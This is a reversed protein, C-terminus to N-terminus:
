RQIRFLLGDAVQWARPPIKPADSSKRSVATIKCKSLADVLQDLPLFVVPAPIVNSKSTTKKLLRQITSSTLDRDIARAM